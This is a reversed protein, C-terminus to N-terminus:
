QGAGENLTWDYRLYAITYNGTELYDIDQPSIYKTLFHLVARIAPEQQKFKLDTGYKAVFQGGYWTPDLISSLSVTQNERDIKFAHSSTIFKKVQDDFQTSLNQGCYAENRLPVGSMSAYSMAFLVRPEGFENLFFRQEIERLTFEEDMIIFKHEDWIGKIHRISNPPWFLRLMRNSEIPYNEMIIKTLELNYANIWFALKDDKSWSNYDNRDLGRFKDLLSALELKKRTLTKYDVMGDRNVYKGLFETCKGCLQAATASAVPPTSKPQETVNEVPTVKQPKNPEAAITKQTNPEPPTSQKIKAPEPKVEVTNPDTPKPATAPKPAVTQAPPIPTAVKASNQGCGWGVLLAITLVATFVVYRSM